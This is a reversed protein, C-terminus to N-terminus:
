SYWALKIYKQMLKLSGLMIRILTAPGFKSVLYGPNNVVFAIYLNTKLLEIYYRRLTMKSPRITVMGFSWQEYDTISVLLRDKYTNYLPLNPFPTLPSCSSIQPKLKQIYARLSSFDAPSWDPHMMFSAWVDVKIERLFTAAELNDEVTSKKKYRRLEEPSFTEYGVLVAALGNQAFRSIAPRNQLISFVSGYCVFNKKIGDAELRDCLQNLREASCLFDNDFIMISPETIRQIQDYVLDIDQPDETGGELRWRLCFDCQKSCGLSTQIIACPKYGFYSYHHRYKATCQIDPVLYENRGRIATKEFGNSKSLIGDILPVKDGKELHKFLITLNERTTYHMVHDISNVCFIKPAFYTQTGGVVTVIDPNFSKVEDALMFVNRVDVCLTTFGVVDPQWEKCYDTLSISEIMLDLIKVTHKPSLVAYVIELGIPESYMFEGITVAQKIRPPRVLLIRMQEEGQQVLFYESRHGPSYL